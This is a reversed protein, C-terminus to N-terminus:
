FQVVQATGTLKTVTYLETQGQNLVPIISFRHLTTIGETRIHALKHNPDLNVTPVLLSFTTSGSDVTLQLTVTAITGIETAVTRIQDGSFQLTHQADHYAFHPKGDIGSLAYSVTLNQGHLQYLNPTIATM